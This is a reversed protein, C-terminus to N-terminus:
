FKIISIQRTIKKAVKKNIFPLTHKLRHQEKELFEFISDNNRNLIILLLNCLIM